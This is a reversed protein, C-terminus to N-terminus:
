QCIEVQCACGAHCLLEYGITEAQQAVADVSVQEGWLEAMDGVKVQDVSRLDVAIADMSVRGLTSTMQGNISVPTGTGAHRPYGDGYGTAVYGVPMDEPCVWLSGYGVAEGKRLYNVAIVRSVLSMAPRLELERASRDQLPSSGYLMIGPRVWDYQAAPFRILGASNALSKEESCSSTIKEFEDIQRANLPAAPDDGNAFHSMLRIEEIGSLAQLRRLAEPFQEAQFGLRGMGTNLKLWVSLGKIGSQELLALQSPHHIVPQIAQGTLALLQQPTHFGQLVMVPKSIGGQRLTLAEDVCAVAFMAADDLIEAVRLMGHGYAESKIVAIVRSHPAFDRVRSLNHRLASVHIRVRSTRIM